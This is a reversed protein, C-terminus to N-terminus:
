LATFCKLQNIYIEDSEPPEVLQQKSNWYDPNISLGTSFEKRKKNFTIRCRIPCSGKFNTKAKYLQFLITTKM